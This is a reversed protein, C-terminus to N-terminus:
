SSARRKKCFDLYKKDYGQFPRTKYKRFLDDFLAFADDLRGADFHVTAVLFAISADSGEDARYAKRMVDLWQYAKEFQKTEKFFTVFGRSLNQAYDYELKPEPLEAWVALFQKEAEELAGRKWAERGLSGNECIRAVVDLTLSRNMKDM